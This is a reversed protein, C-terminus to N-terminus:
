VARVEKCDASISGDSEVLLSQSSSIHLLRRLTKFVDIVTDKARRGDEPGGSRLAEKYQSAASTVQLRAWSHVSKLVQQIRYKSSLSQGADPDVLADTLGNEQLNQVHSRFLPALYAAWENEKRTHCLTEALFAFAAAKGFPETASAKCFHWESSTALSTNSPAETLWSRSEQELQNICEICKKAIFDRGGLHILSLAYLVSIEPPLVGSRM